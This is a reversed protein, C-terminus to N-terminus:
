TSIKLMGIDGCIESTSSNLSLRYYADPSPSANAQCSDSTDGTYTWTTGNYWDAIASGADIADICPATLWDVDGCVDGGDANCTDPLDQADCDDDDDGDDGYNYSHSSISDCSSRNLESWGELYNASQLVFGSFAPCTLAVTETNM